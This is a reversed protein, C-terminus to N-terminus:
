VDHPHSPTLTHTHARTLYSKSLIGAAVLIVGEEGRSLESIRLDLCEATIGDIGSICGLMMRLQQSKSYHSPQHGTSGQYLRVCIQFQIIELKSVYKELM